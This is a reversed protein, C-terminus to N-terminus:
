ETRLQGLLKRAGESRMDALAKVGGAAFAAVARLLEGLKAEAGPEFRCYAGGTLRVLEKFTQEVVPDTGEQFMFLPVGLGAAADFLESPKEECADGVFILANVKQAANEKRVHAIIKNIQTEGARCLIGTMVNALEHMNTTWRSARCENLGRYYVLKIQLGGLKGAEAFLQGQLKASLDWIPQRSATADLAFILRGMGTSYKELAAAVRSSVNAPLNSSM